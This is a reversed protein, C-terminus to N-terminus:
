GGRELLKSAHSLSEQSTEDGSLMRAIERRRADGEVKSILSWSMSDAVEKHVVLHLDAKSAISALHTIVVVQHSRSLLSLEEAVAIAVTGGIGADVEDFILTPIADSEALSTKVALMIRSLEGGSAVSRIPLLEMGPNACILYEVSDIGVTTPATTEFEIFFRAQQMGLRRLKSEVTSSLRLAAERRVDSLSRASEMMQLRAEEIQKELAELAAEGEEGLSLRAQSEAFFALTAELTPGHKKKLRQLLALRGQLADLEDPSFSISGLYDRLSEYIDQVELFAGELRQVLPTLSGDIHAAEAVEGQAQRLLPVAGTGEHLHHTALHLQEYLQEASAIIKVQQAIEEDEGPKPDVQAIEDVAFRLYDAERRANALSAQMAKHQGVLRQHEEYRARYEGLRDDCAAWADLVRLQRQPSLLSQHDRQASIDFLECSVATLDSLTATAGCITTVSRGARRITRRIIATDEGLTLDERDLFASLAEGPGQPLYFTATVTASESGSRIAQVDAKSGLLLSLAGLIISKGAGTEGSIVTFHEDFELLSDEILAYNHIELRELM